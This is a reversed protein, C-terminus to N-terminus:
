EEEGNIFSAAREVLELVYALDGPYGWHRPDCLQEQAHNVLGSQLKALAGQIRESNERYAQAATLVRRTTTM